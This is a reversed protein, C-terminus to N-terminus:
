LTIEVIKLRKQFAKLENQQQEVDIKAVLTEEESSNFLVTNKPAEVLYGM